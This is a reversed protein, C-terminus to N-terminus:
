NLSGSDTETYHSFVARQDLILQPTWSFSAQWQDLFDEDNDRTLTPASSRVLRPQRRPFRLAPKLILLIKLPYCCRSPKSTGRELAATGRDEGELVLTSLAAFAIPDDGLSLIASLLIVTLITNLNHEDTRSCRLPLLARTDVIMLFINKPQHLQVSSAPEPSSADSAGDTGLVGSISWFQHLAPQQYQTIQNIGCWWRTKRWGVRGDGELM